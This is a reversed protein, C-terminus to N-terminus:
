TLGRGYTHSQGHDRAYNGPTTGALQRFERIMHAQDAFGLEVALSGWSPTPARPQGLRALVANLRAIRSLKKPSVGVSALFLRELRRESVALQAVLERM